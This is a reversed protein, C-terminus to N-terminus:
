RLSWHILHWSRALIFLLLLLGIAVLGLTQHSRAKM